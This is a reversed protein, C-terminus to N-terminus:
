RVPLCSDGGYQIPGLDPRAPRPNGCFDDTLRDLATGRGLISEGRALRFDGAFPQVYWRALACDDDRDRRVCRESVLNGDARLRAGDRARIAGDLVNDVLTAATTPFRAEVGATGALLNAYVGTEAARNLHIGPGSCNVVVNNRLIGGTHETSCDHERCYPKETGGGGLSLGIRQDGDDPLAAACVVLNQEFLGGRSNSKMFAGYSTRNGGAKAFDAVICRRVTWGDGANINLLSVPNDTQRARANTVTCHEVLGADPALLGKGSPLGNVKLAANFDVLVTNRLVTGHGDGVVHFAHECDGDRECVGRVVLNEFVWFPKDVYFGELTALEIVAEGLRAARVYIPADPRGANGLALRTGNLRYTGPALVILTGPTARRLADVLGTVTSADVVRAFREREFRGPLATAPRGGADYTQVAFEREPSAGHAPWRDLTGFGPGSAREKMLALGAVSALAAALGVAALRSGLARGWAGRQRTM